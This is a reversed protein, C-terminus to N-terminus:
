RSISLLHDKSLLMAEIGSKNDVSSEEQSARRMMTAYQTLIPGTM